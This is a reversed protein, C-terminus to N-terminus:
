QFISNFTYNKGFQTVTRITPYQSGISVIMNKRWLISWGITNSALVQDTSVYLYFAHWINKMSIEIEIYQISMSLSFSIARTKEKWVLGIVISNVNDYKLEVVCYFCYWDDYLRTGAHRMDFAKRIELAPLIISTHWGRWFFPCIKWLWTEGVMDFYLVSMCVRRKLFNTM